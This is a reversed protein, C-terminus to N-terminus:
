TVDKEGRVIGGQTKQKEGEGSSGDLKIGHGDENTKSFLRKAARNVYMDLLLEDEM